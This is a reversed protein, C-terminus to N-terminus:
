YGEREMIPRVIKAADTLYREFHRWRGISADNVPQRVAAYSPTRPHNPNTEHSLTRDEFPLGIFNFIEKTNLEKEAILSEYRIEGFNLDLKARYHRLLSDVRIYHIASTLPDFAQNFGHTLYTSVNSIIIDLPHRRIYLIPAESFLLYILGLHMENLPMKDTFYKYELSPLFEMAKTMYLTRFARLTAQKDAFQLENLSHPYPSNSGLWAQSLGAIDNLFKLEDGAFIASHSSLISELLTTGSRPFGCIFIPTMPNFLQTDLKPLRAINSITWFSKHNSIRMEAEVDGYRKNSSINATMYDNWANDYKGIKEYIKGREYLANPHVNSLTQLAEDIRDLKVLSKAIISRIGPIQSNKSLIFNGIDIAKEYEQRIEAINALGIYAPLHNPNINIAANFSQEAQNIKGQGVLSQGLQTDSVEPKAGLTKSINCHHEAYIANNSSLMIDALIGHTVPCNPAKLIAQRASAFAQETQGRNNLEIAENAPCNGACYCTAPDYTM